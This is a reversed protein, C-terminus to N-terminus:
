RDVWVIRLVALATIARLGSRRGFLRHDSAPAPSGILLAALLTLAAAIKGPRTM